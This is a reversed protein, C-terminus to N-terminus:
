LDRRLGYQFSRRNLNTVAFHAVYPSTPASGLYQFTLYEFGYSHRRHKADVGTLHGSYYWWENAVAHPAEDRPLQVGSSAAATTTPVLLSTLAGVVLWTRRLPRRAAKGDASGGQPATEKQAPPHTTEGSRNHGDHM